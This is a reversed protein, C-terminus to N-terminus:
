HIQWIVRYVILKQFGSEKESFAYLRDNKFIRSQVKKLSVRGTNIGEANFIDVMESDSDEGAEDHGAPVGSSPRKLLIASSFPIGKVRISYARSSTSM